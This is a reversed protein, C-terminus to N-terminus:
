RRAKGKAIRPKTVVKQVVAGGVDEGARGDLVACDECEEGM